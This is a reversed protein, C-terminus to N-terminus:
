VAILHSHDGTFQGAYRSVFPRDEDVTIGFNKTMALFADKDLYLQDQISYFLRHM